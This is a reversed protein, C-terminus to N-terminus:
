AAARVLVRGTNPLQGPLLREIRPEVGTRKEFARKLDGDIWDGAETEVQLIPASSIEEGTAQQECAILRADLVDEHTAIIAEVDGKSVSHDEDLRLTETVLGMWGVLKRGQGTHPAQDIASLVGTRMQGGDTTELVVEGVMGDALATDGTPRMVQMDVGDLLVFSGQGDKRVAYPGFALDSMVDSLMVAHTVAAQRVIPFVPGGALLATELVAGYGAELLALLRDPPGVFHTAVRDESELLAQPGIPTCGHAEIAANALADLDAYAPGFANLVLGSTPFGALKLAEGFRSIAEPSAKIADSM